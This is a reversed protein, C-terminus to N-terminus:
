ITISICLIYKLLKIFNDIVKLLSNKDLTLWNSSVATYCFNGVSKRRTALLMCKIIGEDKTLCLPTNLSKVYAIDFYYLSM